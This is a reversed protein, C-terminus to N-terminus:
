LRGTADAGRQERGECLWGAFGYSLGNTSTYTAFLHNLVEIEADTLPVQNRAWKLAPTSIGSGEESDASIDVEEAAAPFEGDLGLIRNIEDADFGTLDFNFDGEESADALDGLELALLEMDWKAEEGVRNDAIRYAKVQNPSLDAAVHVPVTKFGLVQAAALRTHGAIVTMAADVVIPQQWGFERLSAAVKSVAASNNRPNRDYPIVRDIPVLDIQM